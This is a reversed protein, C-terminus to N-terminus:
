DGAESLVEKIDELDWGDKFLHCFQRDIVSFPPSELPNELPIVNFRMLAQSCFEKLREVYHIPKVGTPAHTRKKGKFNSDESSLQPSTLSLDAFRIRSNNGLASKGSGSYEPMDDLETRHSRLHQNKKCTGIGSTRTKNSIRRLFRAVFISVTTSEAPVAVFEDLLLFM